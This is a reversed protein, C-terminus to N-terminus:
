DTHCAPCSIGPVYQPDDQQRQTVVARCAFCQRTSTERLAPDLAVRQDFVFCEGKWHAGGVEEFYKLIGGDLQVVHEIGANAMFLAAKECRIGGTCFTVVRKDRLLPAAAAVAQPFEGFHGIHLQHADVFSGLQVEFENRTDLLVVPRGEEDHGQDLWQKLEPPTVAPARRAMPRITPHRMTIIERKLKVLMRKFPQEASFSLKPSLEAFSGSFLRDTTLWHLFDDIAARPGALFLNIGEPSLLVTGKLQLDLCYQKVPARWSAFEPLAVFQYASINAINM